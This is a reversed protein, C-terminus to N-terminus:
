PFQREDVQKLPVPHDAVPLEDGGVIAFDTQSVVSVLDAPKSSAVPQVPNTLPHYLMTVKETAKESTAKARLRPAFITCQAHRSSAATPNIMKGCRLLLYRNNRGIMPSPM